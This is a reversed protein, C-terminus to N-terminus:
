LVKAFQRLLYDGYDSDKIAFEGKGESPNLNLFVEGDDGDKPVFIKISIWDGPPKDSYSGDRNRSMQDGLVVATFPLESVRHSQTPVRKADLAKQLANLLASSKSGPVALFRGEGPAIPIPKGSLPGDQRIEIRFLAVEGEAQYSCEYSRLGSVGSSANLPKLNFVVPKPDNGQIHPEINFNSPKGQAAGPTPKGCGCMAVITSGLIM